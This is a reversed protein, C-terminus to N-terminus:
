ITRAYGAWQFRRKSIEDIVSTSWHIAGYGYDYQVLLLYNTKKKLERLYRDTDCCILFLNLLLYTEFVNRSTRIFQKIIHIPVTSEDVISGNNYLSVAFVITKRVAVGM